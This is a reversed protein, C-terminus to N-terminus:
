LGQLNRISALFRRQAFMTRRDGSGEDDGGVRTVRLRSIGGEGAAAPGREAAAEGGSNFQIKKGLFLEGFVTSFM